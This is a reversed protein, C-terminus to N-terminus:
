LEMRKLQIIKWFGVRLLLIRLKIKFRFNIIVKQKCEDESIKASIVATAIEEPISTERVYKKCLKGLENEKRAYERVLEPVSLFVANYKISITKCYKAVETKNAGVIIASLRKDILYFYFVVEIKM